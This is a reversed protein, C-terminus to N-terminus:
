QYFKIIVITNQRYIIENKIIFANIYKLITEDLDM